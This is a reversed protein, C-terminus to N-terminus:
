PLKSQYLIWRPSQHGLYSADRIAFQVKAINSNSGIAATSKRWKVISREIPLPDYPFTHFQLFRRM